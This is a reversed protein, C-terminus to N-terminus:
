RTSSPTPSCTLAKQLAKYGDLELYRDLNTAGMGFRKSVVKVEDPHSVFYAM